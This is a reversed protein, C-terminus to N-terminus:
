NLTWSMGANVSVEGTGFAHSLAANARWAQDESTYGMGVTIAGSGRFTGFGAALTAKGPREDYRLSAMAMAAAIGQRAETRTQTLESRVTSLEGSLSEIASGTQSRVENIRQDTYQYSDSRAQDVQRVNAADTAAKGDAVNSITVPAKGNGTLVVQNTPKGDADAVYQVGLQNTAKLADGVNTYAIGGVQYTPGTITGDANITAGGGLAGVTADLQAVNVADTAAKGAGVNGIVVAKGTGDNLTLGGTKNGDADRNYFVAGDNIAAIDSTNKAIDATNKAIDSTNKDIQTQHDALTDNIDSIDSTNKDIQAQHDALTNNINTVDNKINTVDTKINTVSNNLNNIQTDHGNLRTDQEADKATNGGTAAAVKENMLVEFAFFANNVEQASVFNMSDTYPQYSGLGSSTGNCPTPTGNDGPANGGSGPKILCGSTGSVTVGALASGPNLAALASMLLSGSVTSSVLVKRVSNM